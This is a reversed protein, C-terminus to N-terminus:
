KTLAMLAVNSGGNEPSATVTLTHSSAKNEAMVMGGQEGTTTMNITFGASKLQDQYFSLVRAPADPTKFSYGGQKGENNSASFMGTPNSGPYPKFNGDASNVEIAAKDGDGNIRVTAEKGNEDLVVMTKKGPDFKFTMVKGDEKNRVTVTGKNDDSSIVEVGPAMSVAFKAAAYAPNKQMLASDFGSNKAKRYILYGGLGCMSAVALMVVLVGGLVWLLVNPKKGPPLPVQNPQPFPPPTPSSM